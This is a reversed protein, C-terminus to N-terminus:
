ARKISPRLVTKIPHKQAQRKKGGKENGQIKRSSSGSLFCGGGWGVGRLDKEKRGLEGVERVRWIYAAGKKGGAPQLPPPNQRGGLRSGSGRKKGSEGKPV